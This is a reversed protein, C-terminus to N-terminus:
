LKMWKTTDVHEDWIIQLYGPYNLRARQLENITYDAEGPVLAVLYARAAETQGFHYEISVVNRRKNTM